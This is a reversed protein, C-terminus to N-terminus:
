DRSTMDSRKCEALAEKESKDHLDPADGIQGDSGDDTLGAHAASADRWPVM